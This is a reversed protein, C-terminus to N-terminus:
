KVHCFRGFDTLFGKTDIQQQNLRLNVRRNCLANHMASSNFMLLLQDIVIDSLLLKWRHSSTRLKFKVLSQGITTFRCSLCAGM